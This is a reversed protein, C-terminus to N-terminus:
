HLLVSILGENWLDINELISNDMKEPLYRMIRCRDFFVVNRAIREWNDSFSESVMNVTIPTFNLVPDFYNASFDMPNLLRISERWSDGTKCQAFAIFQGLRKDQFPIHAVLDLKDDVQHGTDGAPRRTAYKPEKLKELLHRLRDDFTRHEDDGTGFVFCNCKDGFYNRLVQSCLQEFLKGGDIGNFIRNNSMNNRTAFLLFFYIKRIYDTCETDLYVSYGDSFFPYNGNTAKVREEVVALVDLFPMEKEIRDDEEEEVIGLAQSAEVASYSGQGSRLCMVEMFDANESKTARLSPLAGLKYPM